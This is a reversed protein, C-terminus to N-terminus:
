LTIMNGRKEGPKSAQPTGPPMPRERTAKADAVAQTFYGWKRPNEKAKRRLVPLIDLDVSCGGNLWQHIISSDTAALHPWQAIGLDFVREFDTQTKKDAVVPEPKPEPEPEPEPEPVRARIGLTNQLENDLENHFENLFKNNIAKMSEILKNLLLSKPLSRLTKIAGLAVNRNEFTNHGFWGNVLILDSERDRQAFGKSVLETVRQCVREMTWGLDAAIYGDHLVFCGISNGHPCTYLYLLLLKGDDSLKKIKPNLWFASEIRGFTRMTGRPSCARVPLLGCAAQGSHFNHPSKDDFLGGVSQGALIADWGM